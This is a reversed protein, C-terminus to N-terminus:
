SRGVVPSRVSDGPPRGDAAPLWSRARSRRRKSPCTGSSILGAVVLGPLDPVRHDVPPRRQDGAAGARGVDGGRDAEGAGVLQLDPHAAAAV